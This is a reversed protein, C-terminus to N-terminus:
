RASRTSLKLDATLKERATAVTQAFRALRAIATLIVAEDEAKVPKVGAEVLGLWTGNCKVAQAIEGIHLGARKRADSIASM